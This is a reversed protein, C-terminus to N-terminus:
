RGVFVQRLKEAGFVRVLEDATVFILLLVTLWIEVIWFRPRAFQGLATLHAAAPSGSLLATRGWEDLYRFPLSALVYISTKWSINYILPRDPFRNIFPLFNVTLLVKAVILAGVIARAFSTAELASGRLALKENLAIVCFATAFFLVAPLMKLMEHALWTVARRM